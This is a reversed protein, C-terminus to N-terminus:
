KKLITKGVKNIAKLNLNLFWNIKILDDNTLNMKNIIEKFKIIAPITLFNLDIIKKNNNKKALSIFLKIKKNTKSIPKECLFDIKKKLLFELIKEQEMSPVGIVVLSPNLQNIMKKWSTYYCINESIVKKRKKKGAIGVVEFNNFHRLSQLLVHYSYNVGIICVRKKM